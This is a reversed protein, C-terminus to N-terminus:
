SIKEVLFVIVFLNKLSKKPFITIAQAVNLEVSIFYPLVPTFINQDSLYKNAVAVNIKNLKM